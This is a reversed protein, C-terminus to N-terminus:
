FPFSKNQIENEEVVSMEVVIRAPERSSNEEYERWAREVEDRKQYHIFAEERLREKEFDEMPKKM